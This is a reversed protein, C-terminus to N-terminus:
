EFEPAFEDEDEGSEDSEDVGLKGAVYDSTSVAHRAACNVFFVRTPALPPLPVKQVWPLRAPDRADAARRVGLLALARQVAPHCYGHPMAQDLVAVAADGPDRALVYCDVAMPNYGLVLVCGWPGPRAPAAPARAGYGFESDESDSGRALRRRKTQPADPDDDAGVPDDDSDESSYCSDDSPAEAARDDLFSNASSSSAEDQSDGSFESM